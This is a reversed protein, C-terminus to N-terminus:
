GNAMRVKVLGENDEFILGVISGGRQEISVFRVGIKGAQIRAKEEIANLLEQTIVARNLLPLLSDSLRAQSDDLWYKPESFLAIELARRRSIEM